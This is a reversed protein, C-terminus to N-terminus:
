DKEAIFFKKFFSYISSIKNKQDEKKYEKYERHSNRLKTFNSNRRKNKNILKNNLNNSPLSLKNKNLFNTNLSRTFKRKKEDYYAFDCFELSTNDDKDTIESKSSKSNQDSSIISGTINELYSISLNQMINENKKIQESIEDVPFDEALKEQIYDIKFNNKIMSVVKNIYFESLNKDKMYNEIQILDRQFLLNKISNSNYKDRLEKIFHRVLIKYNYEINDKLADTCEEVIILFLEESNNELLILNKLDEDTILVIKSNDEDIYYLLIDNINIGFLKGAWQKMENISDFNKTTILGQNSYKFEFKM